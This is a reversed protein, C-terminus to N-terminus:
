AKPRPMPIPINTLGTEAEVEDADVVTSATTENSVNATFPKPQPLTTSIVSWLGTTALATSFTEFSPQISVANRVVTSYIGDDSISRYTVTTTVRDGIILMTTVGCLLVATGTAFKFRGHSLRLSGRMFGYAQALYSTFKFVHLAAGALSLLLATAPLTAAQYAMKAVTRQSGSLREGNDIAVDALDNAVKSLYPRYIHADFSASSMEPTVVVSGIDVGIDRKINSRVVKQVDNDALFGSFSLGPELFADAGLLSTIKDAYAFKIEKVAVKRYAAMFGSRDVIDWESSVPLREKVKNRISATTWGRRPIGDPFRERLDTIYKDWERSGDREVNRIANSYANSGAVYENYSRRVEDFAAGFFRDRMESPTGVTRVTEDAVLQQVNSGTAAILNPINSTSAATAVFARWAADAEGPRLDGAGDEAIARRALMGVYASRLDDESALEASLTGYFNLLHFTGFITIAATMTSTFLVQKFSARNESFRPAILGLVAIFVAVGTLLRGFEEVKHIDATSSQGGVIHVLYTAFPVEVSLYLGTLVIMFWVYFPIYRM